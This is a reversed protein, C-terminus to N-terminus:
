ENMKKDACYEWTLCNEPITRFGWFNRIKKGLYESFLWNGIMETKERRYPYFNITKNHRYDFKLECRNMM